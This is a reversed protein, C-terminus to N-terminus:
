LSGTFHFVRSHTDRSRSQAGAASGPAPAQAAPLMLRTRRKGTDTTGVDWSGLIPMHTHHPHPSALCLFM